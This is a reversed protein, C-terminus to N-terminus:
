PKEIWAVANPYDLVMRFGRLANGGIAGVVPKDTWDSFRDVFNSDPRQLFWVNRVTFGAISVEPVLIMPEGSGEEANPLVKWDPHDKKWGELISHSILSVARISAGGADILNLADSKLAVSAGTALLVDYTKGSITVEIRPYSMIRVGQSNKRFGMELKHAGESWSAKGDEHYILKQDPFNYTWVRDQFWGQGLIGDIDKTLWSLRMRVPGPAIPIVDGETKPTPVGKGPEFEPWTAAMGKYDALEVGNVSLKHRLAADDFIFVGGGTDTLLRMAEGDPIVPLAIFRDQDYLTPIIEASVPVASGFAALWGIIIIKRIFSPM